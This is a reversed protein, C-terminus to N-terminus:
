CLPIALRLRHRDRERETIGNSTQRCINTLSEKTQEPKTAKRNQSKNIFGIQAERECTLGPKQRRHSLTLTRAHMPTKASCLTPKTDNLTPKAHTSHLNRAISLCLLQPWVGARGDARRMQGSWAETRGLRRLARGTQSGSEDPGKRLTWDGSEDVRGICGGSWGNHLLEWTGRTVLARFAKIDHHHHLWM